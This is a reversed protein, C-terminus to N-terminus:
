AIRLCEVQVATEYSEGALTAIVNLLLPEDVPTQKTISLRDDPMLVTGFPFVAKWRVASEPRGGEIQTTLQRLVRPSAECKLQSYVTVDTRTQGGAANSTFTPRIVDALDPMFKEQEAQMSKLEKASIGERPM